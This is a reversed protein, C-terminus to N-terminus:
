SVRGARRKKRRREGLYVGFLFCFCLFLPLAVSWWRLNARSGMGFPLRQLTDRQFDAEVAGISCTGKTRATGYIDEGHVLPHKQCLTPSGGGRAPSRLSPAFRDNLSPAGITTNEGCTSGPSPLTNGGGGVKQVSGTCNAAGNDAVITNAMRLGASGPSIGVGAGQNAVVTVNTLEIDGGRIAASTASSGNCAFLLNGFRLPTADAEGAAGVSANDIVFVRSLSLSGPTIKFAAFARNVETPAVSRGVLAIAGGTQRASNRSLLLLQGSAEGLILMAGGYESATNGIMKFFLFFLSCFGNFGNQM